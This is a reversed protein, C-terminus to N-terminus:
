SSVTSSVTEVTGGAVYVKSNYEPATFNTQINTFKAHYWEPGHDLGWQGWIQYKAGAGTKAIEEVFFNGKTPHPQFVSHIVDFNVLLATGAPLFEGIRLNVAGIPTIVTDVAIGNLTRGSEVRTLNNTQADASLQLYTNADCWLTLNEFPANADRVLAVAEAVDWFTLPKDEMDIVNSEIASVMGRTKNAETDNTAKNYVGNICTYEMDRGMKVLKATLQFDLEDMPDATQGSINVGSLTGMNSQKAYSVGVSAMWIQTVNTKQSRTIINADPATLSAIESIEPQSGDMGTSYEQGTVFEVSNTYRPRASAISLFPTRTNGKNFLVGSYNLTAFSTAFTDAM